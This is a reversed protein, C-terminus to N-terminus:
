KKNIKKNVWRIFFTKAGNNTFRYRDIYVRGDKEITLKYQQSKPTSDDYFPQYIITAKYGEYEITETKM